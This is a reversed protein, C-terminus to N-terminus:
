QILLRTSTIQPNDLGQKGFLQHEIKNQILKGQKDLSRWHELQKVLEQCFEELEANRSQELEVQQKMKLVSGIATLNVHSGDTSVPILHQHSLIAPPSRSTVGCSNSRSRTGNSTPSLRATNRKYPNTELVVAPSHPSRHDGTPYDRCSCQSGITDFGSAGLPELTTQVNVDNM